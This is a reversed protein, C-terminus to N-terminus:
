TRQRLESLYLGRLRKYQRYKDDYIRQRGPDPEFPEGYSWFPEAVAFATRGTVAALGLIASGMAGTETSRVPIIECGLVDAKIQLWVSSRAGGGCAYLRDLAIGYAGLQEQNFRMEYSLAELIARYIEPLGTRTDLGAILGTAAPEVDPTGGMGQLFPLVMLETPEAPCDANLLDYISLGRMNAEADLHAAFRDRFWRVVLGASINYAYTVYGRDELYPVSAFNQRQFDLGPPISAFLPTICESSGTTVVADGVRRVGAGLANVIQDHSGIAVPLKAPLGLAAAPEPLLTGVISGSPLVAPLSEPAIGCAAVLEPSWRRGEVDYLLSRCALSVDACAEGTLRWVVYSAIFLFKWVERHGTELTYLMRALSYSADPRIRAIRMFPEEGITEFLRSFGRSEAHGFYLLIDMLARGGRDVAVFSEGFSSVTLCAIDDKKVLGASCGAIVEFAAAILLDPPLTVSGSPLPYEAYASSLESGDERFAVCKCGTGGIDLGLSIM